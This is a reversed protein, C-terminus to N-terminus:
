RIRWALIVSLATLLYTLGMPIVQAMNGILSGLTLGLMILFVMVTGELKATHGMAMFIAPFIFLFLLPIFWFPGQTPSSQNVIVVQTSTVTASGGIGGGTIVSVSCNEIASAGFFLPTTAATYVTISVPPKSSSFADATDQQMNLGSDSTLYGNVGAHSVGLGIAITSSAPIGFNPAIWFTQANANNVITWTFSALPQFTLPNQANIPNTNTVLWLGLTLKASTQGNTLSISSLRTSINLVLAGSPSITTVYLNTQNSTIATASASRINSGIVVGAQNNPGCNPPLNGQFALVGILSIYPIQFPCGGGIACNSNSIYRASTSFAQNQVTSTPIYFGGGFLGDNFASTLPTKVAVSTGQGYGACNGLSIMSFGITIGNAPVNKSGYGLTVTSTDAPSGNAANGNLTAGSAGSDSKAFLASSPNYILAYVRIFEGGGHAIANANLNVTFTTPSTGINAFWMSSAIGNTTACFGTQALSNAFGVILGYSNGGANDTISTVTVTSSYTLVILVVLYNASFTCSGSITNQPASITFTYSSLSSANNRYSCVGTNTPQAHTPLVFSSFGLLLLIGVIAYSLRRLRRNTKPSDL